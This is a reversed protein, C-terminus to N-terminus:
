LVPAESNDLLIFWTHHGRPAEGLYMEVFHKSQKIHKHIVNEEIERM